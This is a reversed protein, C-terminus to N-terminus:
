PCDGIFNEGIWSNITVIYDKCFNEVPGKGYLEATFEPYPYGLDIVEIRGEVRRFHDGARGTSDVVVQVGAFKVPQSGNYLLVQFDSPIMGYLNELRLFSAAMTRAGGIAPPVAIIASCAWNSPQYDSAGPVIESPAQCNITVPDNATTKNNSNVLNSAPFPSIVRQELPIGPVASIRGGSKVPVLALAGRNTAEGSPNDFDSLNFSSATQILHAMIPVPADTPWDVPFLSSTSGTALSAVSTVGNQRSGWNIVIRDFPGESRLPILRSRASSDLRGLFDGYADSLRVCTYAQDLQAGTQSDVSEQVIVEQGFGGRGLIASVADCSEAGSPMTGQQIIDAIQRCTPGGDALGAAGDDLEANLCHNYKIVALKADEVGALASDYAAQSIDDGSSSRQEQLMIRVFSLTVVMLLLTAFIVVYLSVAGSRQGLSRRESSLQGRKVMLGNYCM